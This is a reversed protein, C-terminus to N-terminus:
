EYLEVKYGDPDRIWGHRGREWELVRDEVEVDKAYYGIEDPHAEMPISLIEKYWRALREADM